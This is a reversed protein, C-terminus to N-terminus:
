EAEIVRQWWGKRRDSPTPTDEPPSTPADSAAKRQPIETIITIAPAVPESVVSTVKREKSSEKLVRAPVQSTAKKDETPPETVPQNTTASFSHEDGVDGNGVTAADGQHAQMERKAGGRRRRNRKRGERPAHTAEGEGEAVIGVEASDKKEPRSAQHPPRREPKSEKREQVVENEADSEVSVAEQLPRNGKRSNSRNRRSKGGTSSKRASADSSDFRVGNKGKFVYTMDHNDPHLEVTVIVGLADELSKLTTRYNNFLEVMIRHSLSLTIAKSDPNDAVFSQLNRFMQMVVAEPLLTRGTGSCSTCTHTTTEEISSGMRQRSLEMLGFTSINGVQIRARDERLADKMAREVNRRNKHYSMDIFDIVVLGGLNRLRLQRAIEECAELNTKYATEEVNRETTSKGSNVDISILAETPNIVIYGGSRLPATSQYLESLQPEINYSTFIPQADKYQKVRPAHSPTLMKMFDKALRYSAEGEVYIHEMDGNYHDRISRKIIDNEEYVTAPAISAIADERVQNWLKILYEYDRKIEARTRDIGATRIIANMGRIDKLEESIEKLRKRDEGSAIKRSIGGARPSNPMLVCYRGALSIYTTISVGKNGREEKIVQVLVLQGPRMVEQIKYRRSGMIRPARGEEGEDERDSRRPQRHARTETNEESAEADEPPLIEGELANNQTEEDSTLTAAPQYTAGANESMEESAILRAEGDVAEAIPQPKLPKRRGRRRLGGRPREEEAAETAAIVPADSEAEEPADEAERERREALAEAEELLRKRDEVPIQYYDPHIEAFPLFGQKDGGYEVFAAQLSPEIRTVKGLYINGKIQKKSKTIFDFHEIEGDDTIVVRTEEAELADILMMRAM